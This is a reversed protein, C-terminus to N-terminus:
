TRKSQPTSGAMEAQILAAITAISNGRVMYLEDLMREQRAREEDGNWDTLLSVVDSPERLLPVSGHKAYSPDLLDPTWPNYSAAPTGLIVAEIGVNSRTTLLLHSRGILSYLDGDTVCIRDNTDVNIGLESLISYYFSIKEMPHIKIVIQWDTENLIPPVVDRIFKERLGTIYTTGILITKDDDREPISDRKQYLSIHKPFGTPILNKKERDVDADVISGERFMGTYLSEEQVAPPGLAGHPLVYVDVGNEAAPIAITKGSPGFTTLLVSDYEESEFLQCASRYYLYAALNSWVARRTLRGVTKELRVGTEAEVADVVATEIRDNSLLDYVFRTIIRYGGILSSVTSFCRIPIINEHDSVVSKVRLFYSITLLTFFSDHTADMTTELPSFTQPRFVPYKVLINADTTSFFPKLLLSLFADFMSVFIWGISHIAISRTTASRTTTDTITLTLNQNAAIDRMLDLYPGSVGICKIEETEEPITDILYQYLLILIERRKPSSDSIDVGAWIQKAVITYFPIEYRHEVDLKKLKDLLSLIETEDFQSIVESLVIASTSEPVDDRDQCIITSSRVM